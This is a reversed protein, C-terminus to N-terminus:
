QKDDKTSNSTWRSDGDRCRQNYQHYDSNDEDDSRAMRQTPAGELTAKATSKGNANNGRESSGQRQKRGM